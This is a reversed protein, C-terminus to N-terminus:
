RGCGSPPSSCFVRFDGQAGYVATARAIRSFATVAPARRIACGSEQHQTGQVAYASGLNICTHSWTHDGPPSRRSSAGSRQHAVPGSCRAALAGRLGRLRNRTHPVAPDAVIIAHAKGCVTCSRSALAIAHERYSVVPRPSAQTAAIRQADIRLKRDTFKGERQACLRTNCLEECMCVLAFEQPHRRPRSVESRRYPTRLSHPAFGEYDLPETKPLGPVPLSISPAPPPLHALVALNNQGYRVVFAFDAIGRQAMDDPVRLVQEDM